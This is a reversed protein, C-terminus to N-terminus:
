LVNETPRFRLLLEAKTNIRRMPYPLMKLDNSRFTLSKNWFYLENCIIALRKQHICM